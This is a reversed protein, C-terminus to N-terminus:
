GREKLRVLESVIADKIPAGIEKVTKFPYVNWIMVAANIAAQLGERYGARRWEEGRIRIRKM